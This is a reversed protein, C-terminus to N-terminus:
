WALISKPFDTNNLYLFQQSCLCWLVKLLYAVYRWSCATNILICACTSCLCMCTRSIRSLPCPSHLSFFFTFPSCYLCWNARLVQLLPITQTLCPITQTLCPLCWSSAFSRWLPPRFSRTCVHHVFHSCQLLYPVRSHVLCVRSPSASSFPRSEEASGYTRTGPEKVGYWTLLTISCFM